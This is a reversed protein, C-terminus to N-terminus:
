RQRRLGNLDDEEASVRFTNMVVSCSLQCMTIRTSTTPTTRSYDPTEVPPGVAISSLCVSLVFSSCVSSLMPVRCVSMFACCPPPTASRIEFALLLDLLSQGSLDRSYQFWDTRQFQNRLTQPRAM